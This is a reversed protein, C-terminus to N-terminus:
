YMYITIYLAGPIEVLQSLSKLFILAEEFATTFSLYQYVKKRTNYRPRLIIWGYM